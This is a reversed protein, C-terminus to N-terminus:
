AQDHGPLTCDRCIQRLIRIQSSMGPPPGRNFRGGRPAGRGEFGRARGRFGGGRGGGRGGRGRSAGQAQGQQPQMMELTGAIHAIGMDQQRRLVQAALASTLLQEATIMVSM